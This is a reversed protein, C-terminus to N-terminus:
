LLQPLYSPLRAGHKSRQSQTLYVHVLYAMQTRQSPWKELCKSQSIRVKKKESLIVSLSFYCVHVEEISSLHVCVKLAALYM